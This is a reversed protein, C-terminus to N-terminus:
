PTGKKKRRRRDKDEIEMMQRSESQMQYALLNMVEGMTLGYKQYLSTVADMLDVGAHVRKEHRPHLKM